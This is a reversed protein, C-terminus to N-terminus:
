EWMINKLVIAHINLIDQRSYENINKATEAPLPRFRHLKKKKRDIQELLDYDIGNHLRKM